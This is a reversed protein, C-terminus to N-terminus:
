YNSWVDFITALVFSQKVYSMVPFKYVCSRMFRKFRKFWILEHVFMVTSRQWVKKKHTHESIQLWLFLKESIM